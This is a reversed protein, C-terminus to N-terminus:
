GHHQGEVTLVAEIAADVDSLQERMQCLWAALLDDPIGNGDVITDHLAILQGRLGQVTIRANALQSDTDYSISSPIICKHMPQTITTM